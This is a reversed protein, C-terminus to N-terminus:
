KVLLEIGDKYYISFKLKGKENYYYAWGHRTGEVYHIKKFLKGNKSYETYWGNIRGMHYNAKTYLQGNEFYEEEVGDDLDHTNKSKTWIEGNSHYRVYDGEYLGDKEEVEFALQGNDYYSKIKGNGNHTIYPVKKGDKMYTYKTCIGGNFVRELCLKGFADYNAYVGHIFDNLKEISCNKTGNPHYYVELYVDGNKNYYITNKKEGNPYFRQISDIIMDNEYTAEEYLAGNHYYEKWVGQKSGYVYVGTKKLTGDPYYSSFKGHDTGHIENNQQSIQNNSYYFTKEGTHLGNEMTSKLYIRGFANVFNYEGNGQPTFISKIQAGTTDHMTSQYLVDGDKYFYKNKLVGDLSYYNIYGVQKGNIYYVTKKLKGNPFYYKWEGVKDDNSYYGNAYVEGNDHYSIFEGHAKGEKYYMELEKEGWSFNKIYKGSLDGKYYNKKYQINGNKYYTIHEGHFYKGKRKAEIYKYGFKDHIVYNAKGQNLLEGSPNYNYYKKLKDKKYIHKWLVKGNEIYDVYEGHLKGGKYNAIFSTDESYSEFAVYLGELKGNNYTYKSMLRGDRYYEEWAGDKEGKVYQGKVALKGNDHYELFKGNILGDKYNYANLTDGSPFFNVLWGNLKGKKAKGESSIPGFDYYEKFAGDLEGNVFNKVVSKIGNRDYITMEGELKNDIVTAKYKPTGSNERTYYGEGDLSGDKFVGSEKIFGDEDYWYCQGELMGKNNYSTKAKEKGNSYYFVWDGVKIDKNNYKGVAYFQGNKNYMYDRADIKGNIEFKREQEYDFWYDQLFKEFKEFEKKHKAIAKSVIPNNIVSLIYLIYGKKLGKKKVENFFKGYYNMTFDNTGSKYNFLDFMLDTQKDLFYPLGLESQYGRKVAVKSEIMKNLKKFLKNTEKENTIEFNNQMVDEMGTYSKNLVSSSRNIIVAMQYGLIPEAKGGEQAMLEALKYHSQANKPHAEIVKQLQKKAEEFKEQAILQEAVLYDYKFYYPYQKKAIETIETATKFKKQQILAYIKHYYAEEVFGLRNNIAKDCLEILEDYKEEKKLAVFLNIQAFTYLSDSENITTFQDIAEKTNGISLDTFGQSIIEIPKKYNYDEQAFSIITIANFVLFFISKMILNNAPM